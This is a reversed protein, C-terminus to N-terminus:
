KPPEVYAGANGKSVLEVVEDYKKNLDLYQQKYVRNLTNLNTVKVSLKQYQTQVDIIEQKLYLIHVNVICCYFIILLFTIINIKKM